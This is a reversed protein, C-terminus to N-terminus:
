TAYFRCALMDAVSAPPGVDDGHARELEIHDNPYQRILDDSDLRQREDAYLFDMACNNGANKDEQPQHHYVRHVFYEYPALKAFHWLRDIKSDWFLGCEIVTITGAGDIKIDLSIQSNNIYLACAAKNAIDYIADYHNKLIGADHKLMTFRQPIYGTGNALTTKECIGIIELTNAEVIGDISYEKGNIYQEILTNESLSREKVASLSTADEIKQVGSGGLSDKGPKIIVPLHTGDIEDINFTRAIPVNADELHRHMTHKDYCREVATTSFSPFACSFDENLQAINRAVPAASSNSFVAHIPHQQHIPSLKALLGEHDYISHEIFTDAVAKAPAKSNQDINIVHWGADKFATVYPLQSKGGGLIAVQRQLAKSM